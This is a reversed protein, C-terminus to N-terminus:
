NNVPASHKTLSQYLDYARRSPFEKPELPFPLQPDRHLIQHYAITVSFLSINRKNSYSDIFEEYEKALEDFHYVTHILSEITEEGIAGDSGLRSVLIRGKIAHDEAFHELITTPNYPNLWLSEQLLVGGTSKIYQRLLNRSVNTKTPIDYSILYVHGDWPRNTHYTPLLEEIREKGAKSISLELTTRKTSRTILGRRTLQYFANKITKYNVTDLTKQAESIAREADWFTRVGTAAVLTYIQLLLLDTAAGIFGDTASLLTM